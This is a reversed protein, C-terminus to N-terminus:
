CEAQSKGLALDAAKEAVMMTPANTNSSTMAPFISADAVRLGETGHVKLDPGVVARTDNGMRCTSTLHWTTSAEERTAALIQEPDKGPGIIEGRIDDFIPHEVVRYQFQVLDIHNKVDIPDSLYNPDVIPRDFPSASALTVSGQSYTRAVYGGFTLRPSISRHRHTNSLIFILQGNPYEETENLHVFAGADVGPTAMPGKGTAEFEELAQVPDPIPFGMERTPNELTLAPYGGGFHDLLNQGVGPLDHVCDLGHENLHEAPGIGSLMLVHPSGVSGMSLIVEGASVYEAARGRAYTVGTVRRADMTLGTIRAGTIITLNPRDSASNLFGDAASVRKGDKTTFQYLFSGVQEAGNYDPNRPVGLDELAEFVMEQLPNRNRPLEIQIHGGVGHFDDEYLTSAESRKFYPLVDDYSWGTNGMQAWGDYDGRNGRVYMGFNIGSSGGLGKGRNLLIRRGNLHKQPVSRFAWDLNTDWHDPATGLASIGQAKMEGGAELLLVSIAPDASLRNALICGATGAGCVVFDFTTM